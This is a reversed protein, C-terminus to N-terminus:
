FLSPLSRKLRISTNDQFRGSHVAALWLIGYSLHHRPWSEFRVGETYLDLTNGRCLSARLLTVGHPKTSDKRLVAERYLMVAYILNSTKLAGFILIVIKESIISHLKTYINISMESSSIGKLKMVPPTLSRSQLESHVLLFISFMLSCSARLLTVKRCYLSQSFNYNIQPLLLPEPISLHLYLIPSYPIGFLSFNASLPNMKLPLTFSLIFPQWGAVCSYDMRPSSLTMTFLHV